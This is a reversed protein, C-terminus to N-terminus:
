GTVPQVHPHQHDVIVVGVTLDQAVLNRRPLHLHVAGGATVFGKVSQSGGDSFALRVIYREQIHLHGFHIAKGQRRRDFGVRDKGACPQDHEGGHTM